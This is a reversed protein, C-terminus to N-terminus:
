KEERTRAWSLIVAANRLPEAMVFLAVRDAKKEEIVLRLLAWLMMTPIVTVAAWVIGFAFLLMGFTAAAMNVTIDAAVRGAKRLNKL